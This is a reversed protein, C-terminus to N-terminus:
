LISGSRIKSIIHLLRDDKSWPRAAEALSSAQARTMDGVDVERPVDAIRVSIGYSSLDRAITHMKTRVDPDLALVIPTSNRVIKKFLAGDKPLHSGLLCTANYPSKTLDFPGEVLFLEESWDINLENFIVQKKPVKANIYKMTSSSDVARGTFYNLDGSATFSPFIVRRRFRGSRCTGLKFYWIDRHSLGRSLCYQYTSCVDPDISDRNLGLLLFGNPVQLPPDEQTVEEEKPASAKKKWLSEATAVLDPAWKRFLYAINQGKLGCVWCHFVGDDLRVSLKKKRKGNKLCQPCLHVSDERSSSVEGAGFARKLLTYKRDRIDM